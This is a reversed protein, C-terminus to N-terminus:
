PTMEEARCAALFDEDSLLCLDQAWEEGEVGCLWGTSVTHPEGEPAAARSLAVLYCGRAAGHGEILEYRGEPADVHRHVGM